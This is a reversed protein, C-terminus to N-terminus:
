GKLLRGGDLGGELGGDWGEERSPVLEDKVWGRMGFAVLVELFCSCSASSSSPNFAFVRIFMLLCFSMAAMAPMLHLWNQNM